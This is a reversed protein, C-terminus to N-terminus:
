NSKYMRGRIIETTERQLRESAQLSDVISIPASKLDFLDQLEEKTVRSSRPPTNAADFSHQQKSSLAGLLSLFTSGSITM